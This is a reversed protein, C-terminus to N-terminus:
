AEVAARLLREIDAASANEVSLKTGDPLEIRAGSIGAGRVVHAIKDILADASAAGKLVTPAVKVVLLAAGLISRPESTEEVEDLAKLDDTITRIAQQPTGEPLEISLAPELTAV